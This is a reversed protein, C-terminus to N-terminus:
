LVAGAVGPRNFIYISLSNWFCYTNLQFENMSTFSLLYKVTSLFYVLCTAGNIASGERHLEVLICFDVRGSFNGKSGIIRNQNGKLNLINKVLVVYYIKHNFARVRIGSAGRGRLCINM